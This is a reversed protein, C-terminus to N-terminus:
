SLAANLLLSVEFDGIAPDKLVQALREADATPTRLRKLQQDQYESNAILLALRRSM